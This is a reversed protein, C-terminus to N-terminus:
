AQGNLAILRMEFTLDEGALPHNADLLLAHDDIDAIFVSLTEGDSTEVQLQLGIEPHMGEPVESRPFEFVLEARHEGYANAASITATKTEGLAMGRVADDFGAIVGGSGVIFELPEGDESSDFVSGDSLTGTYHIKVTDGNRVIAM